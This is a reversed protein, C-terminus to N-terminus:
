EFIFSKAVTGSVGGAPAPFTWTQFAAIVCSQLRGGGEINNSVSTSIVRGAPSINAQISLRGQLDARDMRAREYCAQIEGQHARFTAAVAKSDMTGPAPAAPITEPAVPSALAPPSAPPEVAPSPAAIPHATIPAQPAIAPAPPENPTERSSGRSPPSRPAAPTSRHSASEPTSAPAMAIQSEAKLVVTRSVPGSADNLDVVVPESAFGRKSLVLTQVGRPLNLTMPTYGMQQGNWSVLASSPDSEIAVALPAALNQLPAVSAAPVQRAPRLAFVTGLAVAVIALVVGIRQWPWVRRDPAQPVSMSASGVRIASGTEQPTTQKEAIRQGSQGSPTQSLASATADVAVLMKASDWFPGKQPAKGVSALQKEIVRQVAARQTAFVTTMLRAIDSKTAASEPISRLYEVLADRMEAASAFRDGPQKELARHVITVLRPDVDPKAVDLRTLEGHVLNNFVAGVAGDLLRRGALAEWLVVGMSFIDARHDVDHGVAQEPPMYRIKGKVLGVETHSLNSTAKAIGFDVVKVEAEYTVFINHPSVDRHVIKLPTGAYDRLEHAHHLGNLAEAVIHVWV